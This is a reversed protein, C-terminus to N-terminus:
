LLLYISLHQKFSHKLPFSIAYIRKRKRSPSEHSQLPSKSIQDGNFSSPEKSSRSLERFVRRLTRGMGVPRKKICCCRPKHLPTKVMFGVCWQIPKQKLTCQYMLSEWILVIMTTNTWRNHKQLRVMTPDEWTIQEHKPEQQTITPEMSGIENRSRDSMWVKTHSRRVPVSRGMHRIDLPFSYKKLVLRYFKCALVVRFDKISKTKRKYSLDKVGLFLVNLLQQLFHRRM